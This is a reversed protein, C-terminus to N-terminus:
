ERDRDNSWSRSVPYNMTILGSLQVFLLSLTWWTRRGKRPDCHHHVLCSSLGPRGPIVGRVRWSKGGTSLSYAAAGEFHSAPTELEHLGAPLPFDDSKLGSTRPLNGRHM